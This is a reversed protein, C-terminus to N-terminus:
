AQDRTDRETDDDHKQEDEFVIIPQVLGNSNLQIERQQGWGRNAGRRELFFSIAKFDGQQILQMLKNEAFDIGHNLEEDMAQQVEPWRQRYRLFASRSINLKRYVNANIGLSGPIAELVQQKTMRQKRGM